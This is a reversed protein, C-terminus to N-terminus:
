AAPLSTTVLGAIDTALDHTSTLLSLTTSLMAVLQNHVAPDPHLLGHDRPVGLSNITALLSTISPNASSADEHLGISGTRNKNNDHPHILTAAAKVDHNWYADFSISLRNRAEHSLTSLLQTVGPPLLQGAPTDILQHITLSVAAISTAHDALTEITKALLRHDLAQLPSIRAHSAAIPDALLTRLQRVALFYLRDVEDDRLIVVRALDPDPLTLSQTAEALMALAIKFTRCLLTPIPLASGTILCQLTLGQQDEDLPEVGVLKQALQKAIQRHAATLRINKPSQIRIVDAGQMYHDLIDRGLDPSTTPDIMVTRLAHALTDDPTFVGTKPFTGHAHQHPPQLPTVLLHGGAQTLLQIPDGAALGHQTIWEKPLTIFFTTGGTKQLKRLEIMPTDGQHLSASTNHPLM